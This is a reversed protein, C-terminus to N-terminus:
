VVVTLREPPALRPPPPLARKTLEKDRPPTDNRADALRAKYLEHARPLEAASAAAAPVGAVGAVGSGAGAAGAGAGARLPNAYRRLNEENQLNNSKEEDGSVVPEAPAGASPAPGSTPPAPAPAPEPAPHLRLRAAAALLPHRALRRRAVAEALARWAAALAAAPPVAEEEEEDEDADGVWLALDLADGGDAPLDCLLVLPAAAAPSSGSALLAAALARRLAACAREVHAGRALRGRALQLAARGCRAPAAGAAGAVAGPWCSAPAPSQPPEVRRGTMRRCEGLPACPPVLCLSPATPVCVEDIRCPPAAPARCDRLGCWLRTCRPGGAAGTGVGCRCANCGRWWTGNAAGCAELEPEEAAGWEAEGGDAVSWGDDVSDIGDVALGALMELCRRALRAPQPPCVCRAAVCAAPPPCPAACAAAPALAPAPAASALPVDCAAGTWGAACRCAWRGAGAAPRCAGHRCPGCRPRECRAGAWREGCACAWGGAARVCSGGNECLGTPCTEQESVVGCTKGTWGPPCVCAFDAPGDICTANNYCPNVACENIEIDCRAGTWGAACACRGGVCAGGAGCGSDECEDVRDRAARQ